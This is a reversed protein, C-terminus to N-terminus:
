AKRAIFFFEKGMRPKISNHCKDISVNKFIPRMLNQYELLSGGFPPGTVLPFDFLMGVYKGNNSLLDYVKKIMRTRLNPDIACFFTQEIIADYEGEHEFFDECFLQNKPFNPNREEFSAIVSESWDIIAVNSFGRSNLYEAEYANGAGPILIRLDKNELQDFYAKLPTSVHGIDWGLKGEKYRNDWYTASLDKM